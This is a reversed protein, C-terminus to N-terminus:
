GLEIALVIRRYYCSSCLLPCNRPEKLACFKSNKWDALQRNDGRYNYVRDPLLTSSYNDNTLKKGKNNERSIRNRSDPFTHMFFYGALPRARKPNIKSFLFFYRSKCARNWRSLCIKANFPRTVFRAVIRSFDRWVLYNIHIAGRTQLCQPM